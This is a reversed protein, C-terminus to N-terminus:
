KKKDKGIIALIDGERIIMLKEGNDEVEHIIRADYIIIDGVKVELKKIKGDSMRRGKGVAVVVAEKSNEIFSDPLELMSDNKKVIKKIIVKDKLPKLM